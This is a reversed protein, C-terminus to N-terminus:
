FVTRIENYDDDLEFVNFLEGHEDEYECAMSYAHTKHTAIFLEIEDDEYVAKYTKM